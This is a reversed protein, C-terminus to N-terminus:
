KEKATFVGDWDAEPPELRMTVLRTAFVDFLGEIGPPALAKAAALASDASPFDTTRYAELFRHQAEALARFAESRAYDADGLLTFIPVPTARGKVRVRDVELFALDAAGARTDETALISVRYQKTLSEVRSALNMGDGIASYSFRQASGFNGVACVASNLGIGIRLERGSTKNLQELAALVGLAGLCAKRRHDEIDLPANWFAVIADGVYKDITAESRLLVDTAPTLFNNLLSTLEDPTLKESISTFDRIDSFLITLERLEGGLTLGSPNSSLRGVLEPSLYRGFASRIFRKERDTWLLLLPTTAALAVLAAAAPVIPDLLLHQDRFAWWSLGGAAAVLVITGLGSAIAGGALELGLVILGLVVALAVEAGFAWDLRDLFVQGIIQDIIEAHVRVGAVANGFPTAVLDRLGVASTGILVIRGAIEDALAPSAPDALLDRASITPMSKLGSYYIRFEGLPGTPMSLAGDKFATMAAQGTDAEGSAGTSRVIFSGSGQAVRLAEVSLAPYLHGQASAVVPLSRVVGDASLPFSFFGLGAAAENLVPLDAVGGSFAPLYTKPDAGGFSFGAKPLPLPASTENSIPFGAVIPNGAFAKALVADNDLEIGAPLDVKAGQQQLTLLMASPSTRDPEPFAVDFAVAAAGGQVLRDVIRAMTTRPWPWQGIAAISAEDIDVVALSAGAEERPAIRQYADFVINRLRDFVPENSTVLTIVLGIAALGPLLIFLRRRWGAARTQRTLRKSALTAANPTQLM